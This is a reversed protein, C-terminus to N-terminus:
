YVMSIVLSKIEIKNTLCFEEKDLTAAKYTRNPVPDKFIVRVLKKKRTSGEPLLLHLWM